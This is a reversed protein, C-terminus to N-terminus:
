HQKNNFIYMLNCIKLTMPNKLTNVRNIFEFVCINKVKRCNDGSYLLVITPSIVIKCHKFWTKSLILLNLARLFGIASPIHLILWYFIFNESNGVMNQSFSTPFFVQLFTFVYFMKDIDHFFSYGWKSMEIM